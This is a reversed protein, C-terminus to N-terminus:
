RAHMGTFQQRRHPARRQQQQLLLEQQVCAACGWQAEAVHGGERVPVPSKGGSTSSILAAPSVGIGEVLTPVCRCVGAGAQLMRRPVPPM